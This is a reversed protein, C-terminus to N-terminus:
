EDKETIVHQTSAIEQYAVAMVRLGENNLRTLYNTIQKQLEQSITIIEGEHEVANAIMMMEQVAGKTIIFQQDREDTTAVAVSLRRRASDFHLENFKEYPISDHEVPATSQQYKSISQDLLSRSGT